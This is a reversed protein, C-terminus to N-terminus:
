KYETVTIVRLVTVTQASKKSPFTDDEFQAVYEVRDDGGEKYRQM